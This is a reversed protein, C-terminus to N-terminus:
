LNDEDELIAIGGYVETDTETAEKLQRVLETGKVRMAVEFLIEAMDDKSVKGTKLVSFQRDIEEFIQDRLSRVEGQLRSRSETLEDRLSATQKDLTDNLVEFTNSLKKNTRDVQQRLDASDESSTLSVARIKKDLSEIAARMEGAAYTKAEEIRDRLDQRMISLDAELQTLRNEYERLQPGMLIDRIQDINGLRERLAERTVEAM